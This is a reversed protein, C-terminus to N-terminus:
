EIENITEGEYEKAYTLLFLYEKQDRTVNMYIFQNQEYFNLDGIDSLLIEFGPTKVLRQHDYKFTMIRGDLDIYSYTDGLEIYRTGIVYQSVQKSAIYLDEQFESLHYSHSILRYFSMLSMMIM